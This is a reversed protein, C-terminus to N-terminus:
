SCCRPCALVVGFLRLLYSNTKTAHFLHIPHNTDSCSDSMFFFFFVPLFSPTFHDPQSILSRPDPIPSSTPAPSRDIGERRGGFVSTSIQHDLLWRALRNRRGDDKGEAGRGPRSSTSPPKAM